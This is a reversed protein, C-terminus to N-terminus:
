LTNRREVVGQVLYLGRVLDERRVTLEMAERVRGSKNRNGLGEGPVGYARKYDLITTMTPLTSHTSVGTVGRHWRSSHATSTWQPSAFQKGPSTSEYAGSWDSSPQGSPWTRRSADSPSPPPM